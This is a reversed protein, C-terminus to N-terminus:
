RRNGRQNVGFAPQATRGFRQRRGGARHRNIGFTRLTDTVTRAREQHLEFTLVLQVENIRLSERVQADNIIRQSVSFPHNM